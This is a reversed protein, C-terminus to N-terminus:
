AGVREAGGGSVTGSAEAASLISSSCSWIFQTHTHSLNKKWWKSARGEWSIPNNVADQFMCHGRGANDYARRSKPGVSRGVAQGSSLISTLYKKDPEEIKQGRLRGQM